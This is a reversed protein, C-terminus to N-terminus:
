KKTWMYPWEKSKFVWEEDVVVIKEIFHKIRRFRRNETATKNRGAKTNNAVDHGIVPMAKTNTSM